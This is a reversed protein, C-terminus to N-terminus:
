RNDGSSAGRCALVAVIALIDDPRWGASSLWIVLIIVLVNPPAVASGPRVVCTRIIRQAASQGTSVIAEKQDLDGCAPV